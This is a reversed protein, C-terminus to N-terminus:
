TFFLKLKDIENRIASILEAFNFGEDIIVSKEEVNELMESLKKFRMNLAAGKIKHSIERLDNFSSNLIAKELSDIQDVTEKFFEKGIELLVSAPIMLEEAVSDINYAVEPPSEVPVNEIGSVSIVELSKLYKTLVAELRDMEIPKTLYGDMGSSMITEREGKLARATLAVIPTHDRGKDDEFERIMRTTEMGDAVPMNVDMLVLDYDGKRFRDFVDLGNGAMDVDIGYDGLLLTMLKQNTRNDEGVLVRGAFRFTRGKDTETNVASRGVGPEISGAIADSVMEPTLPHYIRGTSFGGTEASLDDSGAEAIIVLPRDNIVIADEINIKMGSSYAIFLIEYRNTMLESITVARTVRCNFGILYSEINKVVLEETLMSHYICANIENRNYFSSSLSDPNKIGCEIEFYFRSGVGPESEIKIEGGLLRVLNSSISLGLGTGGFRRTISSDAQTFAEFIQKQKRLPIGLGTDAVSFTIMCSGGTKVSLIIDISVAGEEPTFKIANSLLNSLIQKIRLPDSIISMPLGPDIFSILKIRKERARVNFLKIISDFEAYPNFEV